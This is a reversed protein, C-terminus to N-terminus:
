VGLCNGDRYFLSTCWRRTSLAGPGWFDLRKFGANSLVDYGAQDELRDSNDWIIVGDARLSSLSNKACNVRDRGDIVILDFADRYGLIARAYDKCGGKCRRYLYTTNNFTAREKFAAYWEKDHECSVLREVRKAWWLTSNGTGYEFVSMSPFVRDILFDLAPYTIWPQPKGHVDVVEGREMSMLWGSQELYGPSVEFMRIFEKVREIKM